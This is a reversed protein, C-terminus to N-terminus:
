QQRTSTAPIDDDSDNSKNENDEAEEEYILNLYEDVMEDT